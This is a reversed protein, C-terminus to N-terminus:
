AGAPRPGTPPEPAGPAAPDAPTLGRLCRVPRPGRYYARFPSAQATGRVPHWLHFVDNRGYLVVVRPRPRLRMVRERLDDDEGIGWAEYVEDFGNVADLLARDYAMNLGLVKPRNRLRLWTGWRSKRARVALDRRDADTIWAEFAGRDVVEPTVAATREPDLRVAGAVTLTRPGHVALHREVFAAPPVCDGDTFIVCPNEPALRLAANLIRNKRFGRDEHWVHRVRLGRAAAPGEAYARVREGVEPRSGDDAVVLEFDRTTQRLYGRLCLDLPLGQNYVSVVVLARPVAM